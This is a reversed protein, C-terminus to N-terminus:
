NEKVALKIIKDQVKLYYLGDTLDPLEIRNIQGLLQGRSVIVGMPSILQYPTNKNELGQLICYDHAPNPYAIIAEGADPIESLDSVISDEFGPLLNFKIESIGYCLPDGHNSLATLLVFQASIGTLDPGPFGSYVSTGEAKSFSMQGWHSWHIGDISYDIFVDNFGQDLRLPDNTNWIWSKSLNRIESFNYMIWHSSGYSDNPNQKKECTRWTQQWITADAEFCDQSVCDLGFLLLFSILLKINM